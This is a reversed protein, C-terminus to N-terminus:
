ADWIWSRKGMIIFLVRHRVEEHSVIGEGHPRVHHLGIATTVHVLLLLDEVVPQGPCPTHNFIGKTNQSQPELAEKALHSLFWVCDAQENFSGDHQVVEDPLAILCQVDAHQVLLIGLM